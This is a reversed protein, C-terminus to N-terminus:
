TTMRDRIDYIIQEPQQGPAKKWIVRGKDDYNYQFCQESLIQSGATGAFSWSNAALYNVADPQLVFRLLGFDDYVNDWIDQLNFLNLDHYLTFCNGQRFAENIFFQMEARSRWISKSKPTSNNLFSFHTLYKKNMESKMRFDKFFQFRM